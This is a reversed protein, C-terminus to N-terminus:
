ELFLLEELSSESINEACYHFLYMKTLYIEIRENKFNDWNSKVTNHDNGFQHNRLITSFATKFAKLKEKEFLDLYKVVVSEAKIEEDFSMIKKNKTPHYAYPEENKRTYRGANIVHFMEHIAYYMTLYEALSTKCKEDFKCMSKLFDELDGDTFKSGDNNEPLIIKTLVSNTGVGFDTKSFKIEINNIVDKRENSTVSAINQFINNLEKLMLEESESKPTSYKIFLCGQIMISM